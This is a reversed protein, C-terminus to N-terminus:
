DCRWTPGPYRRIRGDLELELLATLLRDVSADTIGVLEDASKPGGTRLADLLRGPLGPLSPQVPTKAPTPVMTEPLTDLLDRPHLAPAAGDRLLANPGLSRDDFIRGPLAFVERGLELAYRATILSGSRAAAQIVLVSRSLAAIIRNRVPFNWARPPTECPFETLLAGQSAIKQGLSRNGRPYDIALGCGLVAVTMGNTAELAGSHAATDVGRAFGSVVTAGAAALQHGFFRAAELGYREARRSGVIAIGSSASLEGRLYLVPPPLPLDLLAQPYDPDLRTVVRGGARAAERRERDALRDADDLARRATEIHRAPVGIEVAIDSARRDAHRWSELHTGLRCIAGRSLRPIQNLAILLNEPKSM